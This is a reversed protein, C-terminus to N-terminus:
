HKVWEMSVKGHSILGKWTKWQIKLIVQVAQFAM